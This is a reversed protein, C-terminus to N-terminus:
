ETKLAEIQLLTKSIKFKTLFSVCIKQMMCQKDVEKMTYILIKSFPSNDKNKEKILNLIKEKVLM